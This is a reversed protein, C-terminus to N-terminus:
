YVQNPVKLAVVEVVAAGVIYIGDVDADGLLMQALAEHAIGSINLWEPIMLYLWSM